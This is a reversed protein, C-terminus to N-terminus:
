AWALIKRLTRPPPHVPNRLGRHEGLLRALSSGGTLGRLGHKLASYVRGTEGPAGGVVGSDACPWQGTQEFHADAWALFNQARYAAAPTLRM